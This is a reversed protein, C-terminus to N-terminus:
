ADLAELIAEDIDSNTYVNQVDDNDELMDVLKLVKEASGQDVKVLNKAIKVLEASEITLHDRELNQKVEYLADPATTIEFGEENSTIDDAGANIALEFLEEESKEKGAIVIMGKSDFNWAVSGPEGLSGGNKSFIHRVDAVTRIKNDTLTDVLIATGAPGYGEYCIEEYNVNDADGSGKKIARDINDNPMSQAKATAIAQRLRPNADPDSGNKAAVTIERILKTFIKGRKADNAGKKRKIKSWKSHGAM